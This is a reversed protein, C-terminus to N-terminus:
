PKGSWERGSLTDECYRLTQPADDDHPRYAGVQVVGDERRLVRLLPEGRLTEVQQGDYPGGILTWLPRSM